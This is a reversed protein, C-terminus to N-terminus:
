AAVGEPALHSVDNESEFSNYSQVYLEGFLLMAPTGATLTVSRAGEAFALLVAVVGKWALVKSSLANKAGTTSPTSAIPFAIAFGIAFSM